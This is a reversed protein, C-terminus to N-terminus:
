RVQPRVLREASIRTGLTEGPMEISAVRTSTRQGSGDEFVYRANAQM